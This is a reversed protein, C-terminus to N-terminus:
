KPNQLYIILNNLDDQSLSKYRQKSNYIHSPLKEKLTDAGTIWDRIEEGSHKTAINDLPNRPNGEGAISHCLQCGNQKYIQRGALIHNLNDTTAIPHDPPSATGMETIVTNKKVPNQIVAFVVTLSLILLGTFIAIYKAWKERM